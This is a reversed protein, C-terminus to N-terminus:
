HSADSTWASAGWTQPREWFAGSRGSYYRDLVTHMVKETRLASDATSACRTSDGSAIADIVTAVFPKQAVEPPPDIFRQVSGGRARLEILNGPGPKPLFIVGDDGEIELYEESKKADFDWSAMGTAGAAWQFSANVRVEVGKPPGEAWGRVGQLPGLLFDLLDLIHSGVDVFFGGGSIAADLRWGHVHKHGRKAMHYRVRRVRGVAADDLMRRLRRYRPFARRYYAVFLPTSAAKFAAAMQLSEDLSRAMPKEVVCPKRAAAVLLALEIHAGPPAAIYVATVNKILKKPDTSWYPINHRRVYDVLKKKDRRMVFTLESGMQNYAAAGSKNETVDGCGLIGWRIVAQPKSRVFPIVIALFICRWVRAM